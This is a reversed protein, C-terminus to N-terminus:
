ADLIQRHLALTESAPDVGLEEAFRRRARDYATLARGREGTATYARMLRRLAREHYPDLELVREADRAAEGPDGMLLWVESRCDMARTRVDLLAARQRDAWAVTIGPLLTRAAISAAVLADTGASELDGRALAAEARHIAGAAEEVDIWADPPQRWRYTGFASGILEAGVAEAIPHLARRLKSILARLAPEWSPPPDDEWLLDALEDRAFTRSRELALATLLLRGQPGPLAAETVVADGAMLNISGTLHIRLTV